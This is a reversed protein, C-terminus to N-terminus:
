DEGINPDDSSVSLVGDMDELNAALLAAPPRGYVTLVVDVVGPHPRREEPAVTVEAVSFGEGTCVELIRRLM